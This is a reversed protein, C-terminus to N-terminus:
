TPKVKALQECAAVVAAVANTKEMHKAKRGM